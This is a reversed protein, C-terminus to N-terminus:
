RVVMISGKFVGATNTKTDIIYYYMGVPVPVGNRTGDWPINYGTSKFVVQGYRDFVRIVSNPYVALADMRWADNIGDGNPSFANPIKLEEFVKIFVEDTAIGCGDNSEVTITYLANETPSALPTAITPDNLDFAPSWLISVNTGGAQGQIPISQGVIIALDPGANATPIKSVTVTVSATDTCGGIEKVVVQYTTTTDLIVTPSAVTDSSLGVAPLWKYSSGGSATLVITDNQCISLSNSVSASPAQTIVLDFTDKGACGFASTSELYYTGAKDLAATFSPNRQNSTFGNPGKWTFSTGSQNRLHITLENSVVRCDKSGVNSAEAVTARVKYYGATLAEFKHLLNNSNPIDVWTKATDTSFQWVITPNNYGTGLTAQVNIDKTGGFCQELTNGPNGVIAATFTPGCPRFTIDDLAFDNGFGAPAANYIRLVLTQAGPPTKFFLGYQKWEASTTEPISNTKSSALLTGSITEIRFDLNPKSSNPFSGIKQLNVVWAAFEYVNDGCVGEITDIYFDGPANTANLIMMYGNNDTPTHDEPLIHWTNFCSTPLSKRITYQGDPNCAGLAYRLNPLPNKLAPGVDPIGSGFDLNVVPAGLTGTCLQGKVVTQIVCFILVLGIKSTYKKLINLQIPKLFLAIHCKKILAVKISPDFRLEIHM